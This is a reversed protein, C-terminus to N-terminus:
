HGLWLADLSWPGAGAVRRPRPIALFNQAGHITFLFATVMRLLSFMYLAWGKLISNAKEV